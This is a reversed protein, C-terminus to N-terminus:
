WACPVALRVMIGKRRWCLTLVMVATIGGVQLQWTRDYTARAAPDSLM